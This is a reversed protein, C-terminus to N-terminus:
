APLARRPPPALTPIYPSAYAAAPRALPARVIIPAPTSVIETAAVAAAGCAMVLACDARQADHAHHAPAHHTPAHHMAHANAMVHAHSAPATMPCEAAAAQTCAFVLLVLMQIIRM